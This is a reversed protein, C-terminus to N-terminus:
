GLVKAPYELQKGRLINRLSWNMCIPQITSSFGFAEQLLIIAIDSGYNGLSDQYLPHVVIDEVDSVQSDPDPAYFDSVRKGAVVKVEQKSM